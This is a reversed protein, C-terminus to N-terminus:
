VILTWASNLYIYLGNGSGPNWNVGDAIVLQGEQPKEPEVNLTPVPNSLVALSNAIRDLERFLYRELQKIDGSPTAQGRNYTM